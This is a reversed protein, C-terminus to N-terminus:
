SGLCIVTRGTKGKTFGEFFVHDGILRRHKDDTYFELIKKIAEEVTTGTLDIRRNKRNWYDSILSVMKLNSPQNLLAKQTDDIKEYISIWDRTVTFNFKNVPTDM